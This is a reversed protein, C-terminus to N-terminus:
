QRCRRSNRARQSCAATTSSRVLSKWCLPTWSGGTHTHPPPTSSYTVVIQLINYFTKDHVHQSLSYLILGSSNKNGQNQSHYVSLLCRYCMCLVRYYLCLAEAYYAVIIYAYPMWPIHFFLFFYISIHKGYRNSKPLTMNPITIDINLAIIYRYIVYLFM